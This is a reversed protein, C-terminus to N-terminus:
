SNLSLLLFILYGSSYCGFSSDLTLPSWHTNSLNKLFWYAPLAPKICPSVFIAYNLIHVCMCVCFHVLISYQM